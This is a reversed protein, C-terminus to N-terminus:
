ANEWRADSRAARRSWPYPTGPPALRVGAAAVAAVIERVTLQGVGTIWSLAHESWFSLDFVTRINARALGRQARPSLSLVSALPRLDMVADILPIGEPLCIRKPPLVTAVATDHWARHWPSCVNTVEGVLQANPTSPHTELVGAVHALYQEAVDGDLSRHTRLADAFAVVLMWDPQWALLAYTRQWLYNCWLVAVSGDYEVERMMRHIYAHDDRGYTVTDHPRVLREAVSGAHYAMATQEVAHRRTRTDTAIVPRCARAPETSGATTSTPEVTSRAIGFGLRWMAVAHGAEHYALIEEDPPGLPVGTENKTM